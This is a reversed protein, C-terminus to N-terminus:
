TLGTQGRVSNLGGEKCRSLGLLASSTLNVSIIQKIECDKVKVYVHIWDHHTFGRM